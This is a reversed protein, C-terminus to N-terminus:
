RKLRTVKSGEFTLNYMLGKNSFIFGIIPKKATESDIAEGAGLTALAVSGDVGAKWGKSARFKAWRAKQAAAIKRRAAPSLTRKGAPKAPATAAPAAVATGKSRAWRARQAAAIKARAAASLTRKGSKGKPAPAAAAPAAAPADGKSRAWRARQAAAIKARASASMTRKGSKGKKAPASPAASPTHAASGAVRTLVAIASNLTDLQKQAHDREQQLQNLASHLTSM